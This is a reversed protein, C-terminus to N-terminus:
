KKIKDKIIGTKEDLIKDEPLPYPPTFIPTIVSKNLIGDWTYRTPYTKGEIRKNINGVIDTKIQHINGTKHDIYTLKNTDKDFFLTVGGAYEKPTVEASKIAVELSTPFFTLSIPDSYAITGHSAFFSGIYVNGLSGSDVFMYYAAFNNVGQIDKYNMNLSQSTGSYPLFSGLALSYDLYSKVDLFLDGTNNTKLFGEYGLPIDKENLGTVKKTKLFNFIGFNSSINYDSLNLNNTAGTYPVYNECNGGTINEIREISVTTIRSNYGFISAFIGTILSLIVLVVITKKM